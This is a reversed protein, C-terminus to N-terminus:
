PFKMMPRERSIRLHISENFRETETFFGLLYRERTSLFENSEATGGTATTMKGV